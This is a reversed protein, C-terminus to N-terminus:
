ETDDNDDDDDYEDYEDDDDDDYKDDDYDYEDIHGIWEFCHNIMALLLILCLVLIGM